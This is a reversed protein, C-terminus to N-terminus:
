KKDDPLIVVGEQRKGDMMIKLPQSFRVHRVHATEEVAPMADLVAKQYIGEDKYPNVTFYGVGFSTLNQFFHTGQSPDVRYNKLGVEVIVRAANIHPWKVPIGLWYDSSGWRGPGILVYNTGSDLFKRNIKEIEEAVTVNNAATFNDDTKVYVVDTVDESVGHGLSNHSRLLCDDDGITDLDEDLMQKSDVIPRIQLLYFQATRNANLNCAFEIEVPRRMSQQGLEMSMQMIKPLPIVNQQLVGCFSIIKRGGEYIGDRIVQDHPDFTSAMFNLSKDKEADKVSLKLINFGDDVKFDSGTHKMDLAYFQNQTERLATNMESMQLIKNPHYPNVRLTQGGDVIYKGLGLALSAIGEEATEDGIPYYNISRLVGSMNPYYHDGYERGVVEQLIVAMKEQDIVNSTATMYAKSDRYYVSAYVGKIACALMRLMEYKDEIYPIMYTTYIGAFPQYHSDELLSSSRIAIPCRTADFFAFFDAILSDPLQARLFAHLIEDNSADSLAISYLNNKDMFQDFIDTCLVVTKPISVNVNAFQNFEPHMKIINDLFALGRGKGGLSGDGIRAFHAYRDFRLRDFVAVVGINKMMRYQVIADFIIKRHANVDQLKHWTIDKLFASVPFIARACLWRSMHNRSIHYLMSEDPIKFINDQLEKINHIRMIEKHTHPDRFIFDGFGMHEELLNRLDISMKKSNKDVFRFGEAEAKARYESESSEMILPVFEDRSRIARLLKLGADPDKQGNIPFRADTIVGLTNDPYKEYLEMAEEYTRALVVKPRGRMRLSAAHPNLAETSFSQSQTLIYSYLNPLISSYFRISDEVLLIMQVGAENIDHDINMKDEILKIISLILNTNGLWCFVYDFISLDENQMRRTIGHSFPTLVVCPMDPFDKKISRAVAFADNDANGPMCIVFNINTSKLVETAEEITSVQTFTPPFRLGLEMYENFIKEDVRGDDELMFADYPNAVILVNYIRRMMLNVFTVDKLYFKNWEQPINNSNEM